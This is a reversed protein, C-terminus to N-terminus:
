RAAGPHWLRGGAQGRWQARRCVLCYRFVPVYEARGTAWWTAVGGDDDKTSGGKAVGLAAMNDACPPLCSEGDVLRMSHQALRSAVLDM